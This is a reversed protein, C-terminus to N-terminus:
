KAIESRRWTKPRCDLLLGSFPIDPNLAMLNMTQNEFYVDRNEGRMIDKALAHMRGLRVPIEGSVAGLKFIEVGVREKLDVPYNLAILVTQDGITTRTSINAPATIEYQQQFSEFDNLCTNINAEVYNSIQDQMFEITPVRNQERYYWYPIKPEGFPVLALHARPNLRIDDPIEIYGGQSALIQIALKGVDEVCERTFTEVPIEEKPIIKIIGPRQTLLLTFGVAFLIIIGLIIFLTIQAKRGRKKLM